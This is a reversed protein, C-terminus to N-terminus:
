WSDGPLQQTFQGAWTAPAAFQAPDDTERAVYPDDPALRLGVPAVPAVGQVRDWGYLALALAMVGDDHLGPPAEYRVGHATYTFEFAELEAVLWRVEPTDPIAIETGQLAAILRQMLRLKSAQTFVHPTVDVGMGQLDAVIADGVGTADGIVPVTGVMQQVRAKTTAWPAQWRELLVVRRWADLGVVVTYDSSRALDLGYVVVEGPTVPQVARQIADLGFPNAGDDTPIGEFEQAFVEAPLEKRAIEVESAPIYPNELTSARFAQWDPDGALGRNFLTIFGHRRGKPTGLFLAQGSLDVLTPRIAAQWVELLERVIGAEDIVALAYKRGRAPDPTDLTWVEIVGGTVLELRKDQENMRSTVAALRDVLERWAELAIKYSPAFWGVPQGALAVECATRIGTATNHTPIYARSCLFLHSPSNVTICRVPVSEVPEIAVIFRHNINRNAAANRQSLRELKRPLRFVPLTTTFKVRYKASIDRGHLKARGVSMTARIGLGLCLDLVDDALRASVSTFECHGLQSVTGDTDMLGQLLALRHVYEARLYPPPIHKNGLVGLKRLRAQLTHARSEASGSPVGSTMSWEYPTGTPDAREGAARVFEAIEPDNGYFKASASKGDGLWVGLVYPDVPWATPQGVIPATCPVSHNRDGRANATLTARIDDTTRVQPAVNTIPLGWSRVRMQNKKANRAANKRAARDWTLWQHEADAVVTTGDSFVVRYCPRGHMVETVFTVQCPQGQEDLLWDGEELAGMTTWGSPTPLPTDLALAKGFRRGCMVVKFRAPHEYIRQQGPHRKHLRVEVQSQGARHKGKPSAM